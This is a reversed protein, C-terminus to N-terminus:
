AELTSLNDIIKKLNNNAQVDYNPINCVMIFGVKLLHYWIRYSKINPLREAEAPLPHQNLLEAINGITTILEAAGQKTNQEYSLNSFDVVLGLNNKINAEKIDNYESASFYASGITLIFKNIIEASIDSIMEYSDEINRYGDVYRRIREAIIKTINLKIFLLQLMEHIDFLLENVKEQSLKNLIDCIPRKSDPLHKEFLYHELTEALIESFNKVRQNDGFFLENLDIGEKEFEEICEEKTNKEYHVRLREINTDFSDLRNLDRVAMRIAIYKDLNVVDRREIDRIKELYIQYVDHQTLMMENIMFGFFNPHLGFAIDLNMQINGAKSKAKQLMSDSESNHFYKSLENLVSQKIQTLERRNKDNRAKNINQASKTLREIIPESGDQNISTTRDWAESPNEFHDKIFPYDVFSQRLDQKFTPYTPHVIEKSETKQTNYGEFLKSKIESSYYFDRLLFINQFHSQSTTWNTLWDYTPNGLIEKKLVKLFRREWRSNAYLRDDPKDNNFDYELDLNFMTSVIFLPPVESMKIFDERDNPTKGIMDGIWNNLMEPMSSQASQKNGHCLMLINIKEANSYKKFLYSVKGRLLMQPITKGNVDHEHIGLRHRAGPFDLLDTDSLFPKDNELEKPLKFVIEATLACLFSKSINVTQNGSQNHLYVTTEKQFNPESGAYDGYIEHLRSVDLLSGYNRLVSDIPLYVEPLFNLSQYQEILQKFLTTIAENNNWLVSFINTWESPQFKTINDAIKEFFISHIVNSAKTSFNLKFYDYIDYIDDIGILQSQNIPRNEVTLISKSILDNIAEIRITFDINAKIDNFYTDCIVLILDTPTLLRAQIPFASNKWEYDTSFRTVLSTAETGSGIPNITNIFDYTNGEGDIITFPNGKSSLLNGVLYSKGQQSEGYLAAAPNGETSFKKKNLKRRHNILNLKAFNRKEANLSNEFWKISENVSEIQKEIITKM